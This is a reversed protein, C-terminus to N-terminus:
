NITVVPFDAPINNMAIDMYLEEVEEQRKETPMLSFNKLTEKKDFMLVPFRGEPHTYSLCMTQKWEFVDDSNMWGVITGRNDSGVEYWGLTELDNASAKKDYVYFSRFAPVNEEVIESNTGPGAYISSFARSLVRLPLTNKGEIKMPSRKGDEAHLFSGVPVCLFLVVCMTLFVSQKKDKM